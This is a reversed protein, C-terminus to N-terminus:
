ESKTQWQDFAVSCSYKLVLHFAFSIIRSLDRLTLGLWHHARVEEETVNKGVATKFYTRTEELVEM